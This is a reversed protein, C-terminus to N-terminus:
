AGAKKSLTMVGSNGGSFRAKINKVKFIEPDSDSHQTPYFEGHICDKVENIAHKKSCPKDFTVRIVLEHTKQKAQTM